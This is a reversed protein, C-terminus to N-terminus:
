NGLLYTHIESVMAHVYFCLKGDVVACLFNLKQNYIVRRQGEEGYHQSIYQMGMIRAFDNARLARAVYSLNSYQDARAKYCSEKKTYIITPVFECLIRGKVLKEVEVNNQACKM